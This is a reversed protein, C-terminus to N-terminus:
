LDRKCFLGTIKDIKSVLAVGYEEGVSECESCAIRAGSVHSFFFDM